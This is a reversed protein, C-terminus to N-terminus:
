KAVAIRKFALGPGHSCKWLESYHVLRTENKRINKIHEKKLKCHRSYNLVVADVKKKDVWKLFNNIGSFSIGDKDSAWLVYEGKSRRFVNIFNDAFGFNKKNRFVKIKTGRTLSKIKKFTGDDSNDDILIIELYSPIKTNLLSNIRNTIIKKRNYTVYGITLKPLVKNNKSLM